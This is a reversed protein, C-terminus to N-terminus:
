NAAIYTRSSLLADMAIQKASQLIANRIDNNFAQKDFLTANEGANEMKVPLTTVVIEERSADDGAFSISAILMISAILIHILTKM